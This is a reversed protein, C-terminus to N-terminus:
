NKNMEELVKDLVPGLLGRLSEKNGKHNIDKTLSDALKALEIAKRQRQGLSLFCYGSPVHTIVYDTKQTKFANRAHVAFNGYVKATIAQTDGSKSIVINITQTVPKSM